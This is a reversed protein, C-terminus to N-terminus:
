VFYASYSYSIHGLILTGHMAVVDIAPLIDIEVWQGSVHKLRYSGLYENSRTNICATFISRDFKNLYSSIDAIITKKKAILEEMTSFGNFFVVLDADANSEM